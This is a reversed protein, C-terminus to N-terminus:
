RNSESPPLCGLPDNPDCDFGPTPPPPKVSTRKVGRPGRRPKKDGAKKPERAPEPAVLDPAAETDALGSPQLAPPLPAPAADAARAETEYREILQHLEQERQWQSYLLVAQGAVVLSLLAVPLWHRQPRAGNARLAAVETEVAVRREEIRMQAEISARREAIEAELRNREARAREARELQAKEEARAREAAERAARIREAAAEKDARERETRDHELQRLEGLVTVVSETDQNRM